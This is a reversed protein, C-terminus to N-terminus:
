LSYYKKVYFLIVVAMQIHTWCIIKLKQFWSCPFKERRNIITDHYVEYKSSIFSSVLIKFHLKLNVSGRRKRAFIKM